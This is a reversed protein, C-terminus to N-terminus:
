PREAGYVFSVVADALKNMVEDDVDQAIEIDLNYKMIEGLSTDNASVAMLWNAHHGAEMDQKIYILVGYAKDLVASLEPITHNIKSAFDAEKTRMLTTMM